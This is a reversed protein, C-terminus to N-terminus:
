TESSRTAEMNLNRRRTTTHYSVSKESFRAAEMNLNHRRTTIHYPVSTESSRAAEMKLGRCADDDGQFDTTEWLKSRQVFLKLNAETIYKVKLIILSMNALCLPRGWQQWAEKRLVRSQDLLNYVSYM